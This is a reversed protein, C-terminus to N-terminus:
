PKTLVTEDLVSGDQRYARLGLRGPRVTLVVVHQVSESFATWPKTGPPYLPAGAGGAVVYTTGLAGSTQVLGARLPKSREYDHDHGNLVLDVRHADYVPGWAQQLDLAPGHNTSSSYMARHHMAITWPAAAHAALDADLFDRTTGGIAHADRPSDNMVVLHVPGYDISFNEEDGPQSFLSYFNVANQEHNGHAFLMPVHRLVPEGADLFAEWEGQDNGNTVADGTFLIVDPFALSDGFALLGGMTAYGGRSDGLVLVTIEASPDIAPDPATRFQYTPSWSERGDAGRGGVRYRYTTDPELGCLHVEHVRVLPGAPDAGAQYQWTVGSQIHEGVGAKGYEVLTARTEQDRTAWQVVMNHAPPGAIGLHLRIPEPDDGLFADSPQPMSAGPPTHVDYGCNPLPVHGGVLIAPAGGMTGADAQSSMAADFTGQDSADDGCASAFAAVLVLVILLVGLHAHTM